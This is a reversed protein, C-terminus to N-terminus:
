VSPRRMVTMLVGAGILSSAGCRHLLRRLKATMLKRSTTSLLTYGLDSIVGMVLFTTFLIALQPALPQSQNIFQPMFAMFFLISKPNLLTVWFAKATGQKINAGSAELDNLQGSERWMKIGLYLLYVVGLWKVIAFLEASAMLLADVGAFSLWLEISM